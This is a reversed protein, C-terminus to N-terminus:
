NTCVIKQLTNSVTQPEIYEWDGPNSDTRVSVGRAMSESYQTLQLLKHREQKCDIMWYTTVSKYSKKISNLTPEKLDILTWVRRYQSETKITSKDYYFTIEDARSFVTWDALAFSSM